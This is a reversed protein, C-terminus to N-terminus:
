KGKSKFLSAWGQFIDLLGFVAAKNSKLKLFKVVESRGFMQAFDLATQGKPNAYQIHAGWNILLQVIDFHGKFSAGMLISNGSYDISNPDAGFQLLYYCVDLHGNYAALMLASYGKADQQNVFEPDLNMKSIEVLLGERAFQFLKENENQEYLAQATQTYQSWTRM